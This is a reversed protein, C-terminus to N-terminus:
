QVAKANVCVVKYAGAGVLSVTTEEEPSLFTAGDTGIAVLTEVSEGEAQFYLMFALDVNGVNKVTLAGQSAVTFTAYKKWGGSPAPEFSLPISSSGEESYRAEARMVGVEIQNGVNQEGATYWAYSAGVFLLLCAIVALFSPLLLRYINPVAKETKRGQENAM